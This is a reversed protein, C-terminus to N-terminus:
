ARLVKFQSFEFQCNDGRLGIAGPNLIVRGHTGDDLATLLTQKHSVLSLTVLTSGTTKVRVRFSQWSGYAVPGPTQGRKRM